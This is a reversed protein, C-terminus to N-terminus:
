FFKVPLSTGTEGLTFSIGLGTERKGGNDRLMVTAGLYWPGFKRTISFQQIPIRDGQVDWSVRAAASYRENIRLNVRFYAYNADHQIPHNSIYRHGIQTELWPMPVMSLSTNYQNFGDGGRVTPTQTELRLTCQSTINMMILSYLNSFRTETNPNDINYDLFLNWDIFTRSEGDYVTSLTNRMGLRWVTWNAWGDIGTFDMLDMPMPCVTSNGMTTSWTDVQPVYPNSSSISGHSIEAYPHIVHYLGRLGLRPLRVSPFHRYFKIDFDCGLYGLLRNDAGVDEVNYYGTYGGGVKPTVNLFRFIKVSSSFEHTSNVRVYSGSNLLRTYYEKLDAQRIRSLRARYLERQEAPINQHLLGATNRTEYAIGSSGLVTRPRYYSLEAREDTSYFHNPAFRTLLMTSSRPTLRDLRVSNDPKDNLRAEEEFYDQLVYRDSLLNLDTVLTWRPPSKKRTSPIPVDWFGQMAVRYRRHSLNERPVSLPNIDPRRDAIGYVQLGRSDSYEKRMENSVFDFGGALGRRSRFDGRATLLYDATPMGREVRRNGLLFGYRNLLYTGWSSKVGPIPMYGEEPNLSHSLTMWGLIPVPVDHESGSLSLRSVVGYDGPYVTLTGTGVWMAPKQVDETTIFAHHITIRNKDSPLKDYTASSGRIITGNAKSRIHTVHAIGNKWDYTGDEAHTLTDGQYIVLPGSLEAICTDVNAVLRRAFIEQGEATRVYIPSSGATYTIIRKESDYDVQGHQNRVILSDPVKFGATSGLSSVAQDVHQMVPNRSIAQDPLPIFDAGQEAPLLSALALFGLAAALARKEPLVRLLSISHPMSTM